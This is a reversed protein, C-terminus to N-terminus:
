VAHTCGPLCHGSLPFASSGPPIATSDGYVLGLEMIGADHERLDATTWMRLGSQGSLGSRKQENNYHVELMIYPNFDGGGIALGFAVFVLPATIVTGQLRGSVLSFLLLAAAGIALSMANM